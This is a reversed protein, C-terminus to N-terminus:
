LFMTSDFIIKAIAVHTTPVEAISSEGALKSSFVAPLLTKM